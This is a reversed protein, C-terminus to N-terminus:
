IVTLDLRFLHLKICSFNVTFLMDHLSQSFNYHITFKCFRKAANESHNKNDKRIKHHSISFVIAKDMDQSYTQFLYYDVSKDSIVTHKM